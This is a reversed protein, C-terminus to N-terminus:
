RSSTNRVLVKGVKGDASQSLVLVNLGFEPINRGADPIEDSMYNLRDIFRPYPRRNQDKLTSGVSDVDTLDLKLRESAIVNFAADHLQFKTSAVSGDEWKVVRQDADVVGLFGEGPHVGVHNNDWSDDVFWVVLGQNFSMLQGSVNLRELGIDVGNHTRWEMLYYRDSVTFGEDATFGDLTFVPASDANDSAVVAGDVSLAIDDVYLGPNLTGSDTFYEISVKVTQGAYASLDFEANVWGDSAGTIGNGLNNGNPNTDTTITAPISVKGSESEVMVYGYDWDAEIDYWTKFALKASTASTLDLDYSMSTHLDNAKGGFYAYQGSTPTTIIRKKKPLDIRIVDNNSGKSVAEDLLLVEGKRDLEDISLTAGHQWNGGWIGQLKEKAYASFGTPETGPIKGAWSGSSMISWYSVPEGKGTYQTDYEDPLGLDHGYEHACVGAAASIPQITYDYAAMMGGWNGSDSTTGEIPFIQGLNWRHAWIADEGLQGGGAEEGVASHFVMVHDVLGDPEWYDGDGDLDYRDEIDYDSLDVNPDAAAALLAERILARADGDVNNGYFAAPKQAMYWGAVNGEVSYSAGSQAIYYQQMSILNEGNPGAYGSDSFLLDQFHERNYDEYYMDTEGPQISNHPFDPFEMLIALVKAKRAGETWEELQLNDPFLKRNDLERWRQDRLHNGNVRRPEEALAAATASTTAQMRARQLEHAKRDKLWDQLKATAEELTAGESIKGGAKLMQILRGENAISPDFAGAGHQHSQSAAFPSASALLGSIALSLISKKHM